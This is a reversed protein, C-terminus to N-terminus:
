LHRLHQADPHLPRLPPGHASGLRTLPRTIARHGAGTLRSLCVPERPLWHVEGDPTEFAGCTAKGDAERFSVYANNDGQTWTCGYEGLMGLGRKGRMGFIGNVDSVSMGLKIRRFNQLSVDPEPRTAFWATIGATTALTLVIAVIILRAMISRPFVIM